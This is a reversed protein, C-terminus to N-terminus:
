AGKQENCTFLVIAQDRLGNTPVHSSFWRATTTGQCEVLRLEYWIAAPSHGSIALDGVEKTCEFLYAAMPEALELFSVM